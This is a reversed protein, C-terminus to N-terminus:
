RFRGCCCRTSWASCLRNAGLGIGLSTIALATFGWNKSLTRVAYRLDHWITDVFRFGSAVPM